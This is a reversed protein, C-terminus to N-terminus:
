DSIKGGTFNLVAGTMGISQDSSAFVLANALEALTTLRKTHTMNEIFGQLQQRTMGSAQAHLGFSVTITETEPLGTTRVCVTRIGSPALELSLNRSLAEMSAWAPAMGGMLPAALRAPDPTHFLIVGSKRRIMFRAAAKATIFQSKTYTSIPLFFRETPLEVLPIGEIGQLSIGIANFSIDIRGTKGFTKELHHNVGQEDLADVEAVEASLGTSSIEQTVKNLKSTSRGTLFVNAGERAFAHATTSGIAGAAGYIVAVKDKLMEKKPLTKRAEVWEEDSVIKNMATTDM